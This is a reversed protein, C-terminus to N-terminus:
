WVRIIGCSSLVVARRARANTEDDTSHTTSDRAVPSGTPHNTPTHTHTHPHIPCVPPTLFHRQDHQETCNKIRTNAAKLRLPHNNARARFLCDRVSVFTVFKPIGSTTVYTPVLTCPPHSSRYQPCVALCLLCLPHSMSAASLSLTQSLSQRTHALWGFPFVPVRGLRTLCLFFPPDLISPYRLTSFVFIVPKVDRPPPAPPFACPLSLCKPCLM